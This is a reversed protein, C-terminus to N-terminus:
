QSRAKKKNFTPYKSLKGSYDPKLIKTGDHNGGVKFSLKKGNPLVIKKLFLNIQFNYPDNEGMLVLSGGNKWFQIACDVFQEVYYPANIDRNNGPLDPVEQGSVVWLSNYLCKNNEDKKCLENIAVEYNTVVEVKYGYYKLVSSICSGEGISMKVYRPSIKSENGTIKAGKQSKLDFSFFM